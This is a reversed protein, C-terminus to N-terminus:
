ADYEVVIKDVDKREAMVYYYYPMHYNGLVQIQLGYVANVVLTQDMNTPTLHVTITKEDVLGTWYDPLTIIGDSTKGRVYVAAEPGELCVHRLRKNEKTPHEIDFAKLLATLTYPTAALNGTVTLSGAVTVNGTLPVSPAIINTVVNDATVSGSTTISPATIQKTAVVNATVSNGNSFTGGPGSVSGSEPFIGVTKLSTTISEPVVQAGTGTAALALMSLPVSVKQGTPITFTKSGVIPISVTQTIVVPIDINEDPIELEKLQELQYRREAVREKTEAITKQTQAINNALSAAEFIVQRELKLKTLDLIISPIAPLRIAENLSKEAKEYSIKAATLERETKEARAIAEAVELKIEALDKRASM